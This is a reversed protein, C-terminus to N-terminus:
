AHPPGRPSGDRAPHSTPPPVALLAPYSTRIPAPAVPHQPPLALIAAGDPGAAPEDDVRPAPAMARAAARLPQVAVEATAPSFASGRPAVRLLDGGPMASVLAVLM